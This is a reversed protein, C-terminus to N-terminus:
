FPNLSYGQHALIAHATMASLAIDVNPLLDSCKLGYYAASQGCIVIKVGQKTLAAVMSKNTNKAGDNHKAYFNDSALDAVAKGHVVMTVSIDELKVGSAVHMNIFRGLSNLNRNPKGVEASKSMDFAVKFKMDKPIGFSTDVEAIKGFDKFVPGSSFAESGASASQVYLSAILLLIWKSSNLYM